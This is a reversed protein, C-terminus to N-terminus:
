RSQTSAWTYVEDIAGMLQPLRARLRDEVAQNALRFDVFTKSTARGLRLTLLRAQYHHLLKEETWTPDIKLSLDAETTSASSVIKLQKSRLRKRRPNNARKPETLHISSQKSRQKVADLHRCRAEELSAAGFAETLQQRALENSEWLGTIQDASLCPDVFLRELAARLEELDGVEIFSGEADILSYPSTGEVAIQATGVASASAPAEGPETAQEVSDASIVVDSTHNKTETPPYITTAPRSVDEADSEPINTSGMAHKNAASVTGVDSRPKRNLETTTAPAAVYDVLRPRPAGRSCVPTAPGRSPRPTRPPLPVSAPEYDEVEERISLGRLVDAFGDRLTWSRARMM